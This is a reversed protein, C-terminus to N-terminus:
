SNEPIAPARIPCWSIQKLVRQVLQRDLKIQSCQNIFKVDFATGKLCQIITLINGSMSTSAIATSIATTM